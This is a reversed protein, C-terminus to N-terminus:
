NLRTRRALIASEKNLNNFDHADLCAQRSMLVAWSTRDRMETEYKEIANVQSISGVSVEVLQDHLLRADTIGHNAAEGRYMTMAHAADGILTVKGDSSWKLCPWDALKIEIIETGQPMNQVAKKLRPEFVDALDKMKQLKEANTAPIEDAPTNVPWSINLQASYYESDGRSGNVEPTDLTAFWLYTSTEPHCGQFLLPDLARLPAMEAPSLKVTAGLFRIPLQYLSGTEPCLIRRVKSTSGDAGVLLRGETKIGDEFTVQVGSPTTEFTAISKNWQVNIGDVLLKRFKERNIRRRPAPPIQFVAEANALNLFLFQGNDKRGQEPDVQITDLRHFLSPPLCAQLAELAWHITIGWGHARVDIHEDRDFIIFPIGDKKLSQALVLGVVGAGVIIVPLESM